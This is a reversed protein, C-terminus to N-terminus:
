NKTISWYQNAGGYVDPDPYKLALNPTVGTYIISYKGYYSNYSLTWRTGDGSTDYVLNARKEEPLANLYLSYPLCKIAYQTSNGLPHLQFVWHIGTRNDAVVDVSGDPEGHLFPSLSTGARISVDRGVLDDPLVDQEIIENQIISKVTATSSVDEKDKVILNIPALSVDKVIDEDETMSKASTVLFFIFVFFISFVNVFDIKNLIIKKM